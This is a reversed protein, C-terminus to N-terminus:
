MTFDGGGDHIEVHDYGVSVDFGHDTAFEGGIDLGVEPVGGDLPSVSFDVGFEGGAQVGGSVAGDASEISVNSAGTAADTSLDIDDYSGYSDFQAEAGFQGDIDVSVQPIGDTATVSVDMGGSVAVGGGVSIGGDLSQISVEATGPDTLMDSLDVSFADVISGAASGAGGVSITAGPNQPDPTTM